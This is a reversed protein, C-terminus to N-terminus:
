PVAQSAQEAPWRSLQGEAVVYECQGCQYARTLGDTASPEQSASLDSVAVVRGAELVVDQLSSALVVQFLPRQDGPWVFSTGCRPCTEPIVVERERILLDTVMVRYAM